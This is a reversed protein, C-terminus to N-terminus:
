HSGLEKELEEKKELYEAKDAEYQAKLAEFSAETANLEAELAKKRIVAQAAEVAEPDSAWDPHVEVTETVTERVYETTSDLNLVIGGLVVIGIVAIIANRRM